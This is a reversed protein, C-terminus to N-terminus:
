GRVLTTQPTIVSRDTIHLNNIATLRLDVSQQSVRVNLITQCAFHALSSVAETLPLGETPCLTCPQNSIRTFQSVIQDLSSTKHDRHHFLSNILVAFPQVLVTIVTHRFLVMCQAM